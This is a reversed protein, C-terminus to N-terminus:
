RLTRTYNVNLVASGLTTKSIASLLIERTVSTQPVSFVPEASLAYVTLIYAKTGPGQSCPPTYLTKGNVTNIGFLGVGSVNKPLSTTAPPINYIVMYVHTDFLGPMGATPGVIHHMTVAISKTGAPLNTWNLPPSASTGDCTYEKPLEAGEVFASSLLTFTGTPNSTSAAAVTISDVTAFDFSSVTSSTSSSVTIKPTFKISRVDTAKFSTATGKSYFNLTQARLASITCVLMLAALVTSIASRLLLNHALSKRSQYTIM